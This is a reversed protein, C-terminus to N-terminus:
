TLNHQALAPLELAATPDPVTAQRIATGVRGHNQPRAPRHVRSQRTRKRFWAPRAAPLSYGFWSYPEPEPASMWNVSAIM